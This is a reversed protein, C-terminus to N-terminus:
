KKGGSSPKPKMKALQVASKRGAEGESSQHKRDRDAEGQEHERDAEGQAHQFERDSSATEAEHQQDAQQSQMQVGAKFQERANAAEEKLGAVELDAEIKQLGLATKDAEIQKKAKIEVFKLQAKQGETREKSATKLEETKKVMDAIALAPDSPVIEASPPKFFQQPDDFGLVELCHADVKNLDYREPAGDAMMKLAQVKLLRHMHTPTNPNAKPVLKYNDLAERLEQADWINDSDQMTRVFAEPDERILEILIQYEEAQSTYGRMHVASVTKAVQELAALMTGVPATANAEAVPVSAIGGVRSGTESIDKTFAPFAPGFEKYPYPAIVKRIDDTGGGDVPCFEGPGARFNNDQQRSGNKLYMGGPFNAFMGSDLMIRWAATLASTTNALIGLLGTAWFGFMPVFPYAVFRRRETFNDDDQRWNRRVELVTRTDKEITVLYPRPLGTDAGKERHADGPMDYDLCTEYITYEEDEVRSSTTTTGQLTATKQEVLTTDRSPLHLEVDRYAGLYQMRKMVSQRMKSRHTKRGVDTLSKADNSVIFDGPGISDSVPRRRLPCHFVKRIPNGGFGWQFLMRDFDPVYEPSKVTLFENMSQELKEAQKDTIATARGSNDIKVPGSAPLMEARANSQFAICADLLLPHDVQSVGEGSVDAKPTKVEIGLITQGRTYDAMWKRMSSLDAEIGELVEDALAALASEDMTDALNDYFTDDEADEEEDDEDAELLEVGGLRIIVGGDATEIEEYDAEIEPLAGRPLGPLTDPAGGDALQPSRGTLAPTPSVADDDPDYRPWNKAM